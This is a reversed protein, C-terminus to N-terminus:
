GVAQLGIVTVIVALSMMMFDIRTVPWGQAAAYEGDFCILAFEKFFLVCFVASALATAAILVADLFLM